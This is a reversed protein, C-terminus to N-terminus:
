NKERRGQYIFDIIDFEATKTSFCVFNDCVVLIVNCM